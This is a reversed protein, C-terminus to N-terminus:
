LRLYLQNLLKLVMPESTLNTYILLVTDLFQLAEVVRGASALSNSLNVLIENPLEEHKKPHSKYALWYLNIPEQYLKKIISIPYVGKNQQTFIKRLGDKANALNYYYSSKYIYPELRKEIAEFFGIARILDAENQCNCGIDVLIAHLESQILLSEKSDNLPFMKLGEDILERAENFAEKEFLDNIRKILNTSM